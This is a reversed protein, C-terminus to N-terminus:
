RLISGPKRSKPLLSELVEWEKDTLNSPYRKTGM